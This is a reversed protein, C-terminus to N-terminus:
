PVGDEPPLVKRSNLPALNQTSARRNRRKRMEGKIIEYVGVPVITVAFAVGIGLLVAAGMRPEPQTQVVWFVVGAVIVAQVAMWLWNRM